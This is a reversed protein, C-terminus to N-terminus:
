EGWGTRPPHLPHSTAPVTGRSGITFFRRWGRSACGTWDVEILDAGEHVLIRWITRRMGESYCPIGEYRALLGRQHATRVQSQIREIQQRSFRGRHPSGITETFNISVSYMHLAKTLFPPGDFGSFTGQSDQESGEREDETSTQVAASEEAGMVLPDDLFISNGVNGRDVSLDDLNVQGRGTLVVTIPGPIVQTGNRHTLYGRESLLALESSLRPWVKGVSSRIELYLKFQTSHQGFLNTAVPMYDVDPHGEALRMADLHDLLPELYVKRLTSENRLSPMSPGVLIDDGQLWIDAKVGACGAALSYQIANAHSRPNYSICAASQDEFEAPWHVFGSQAQYQEHLFLYSVGYPLLSLFQIAVLFMLFLCILTLARDSWRKTVAACCKRLVWLVGPCCETPHSRLPHDELLVWSYADYEDANLLPQTSSTDGANVHTTAAMQRDWIASGVHQM